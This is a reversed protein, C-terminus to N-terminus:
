EQNVMELIKDASVYVSTSKPSNKKDTVYEVLVGVLKLQSNNLFLPAGSCGEEGFLDLDGQGDETFNKPLSSLYGMKFLPFEHHTSSVGYPYGMTLIQTLVNLESFEEKTLIDKETLATYFMTKGNIEKLKDSIPKIECYSIDYDESDIWDVRATIPMTVVTNNIQYHIPLTPNSMAEQAFHKATILVPKSNLIAYFGTATSTRDVNGIEQTTTLNVTLYKLFDYGNM